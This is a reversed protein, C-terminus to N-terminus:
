IKNYIFWNNGDSKLTIKRLKGSICTNYKPLGFIICDSNNIKCKEAFLCIPNKDHSIKEIVLPQDNYNVNNKMLFVVIPGKSTDVYLTGTLIPTIMSESITTYM